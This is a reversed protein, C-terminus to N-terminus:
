ARTKRRAIERKILNLIQMNFSPYRPNSSKNCNMAEYIFHVRTVCCTSDGMDLGVYYAFKPAHRLITKKWMGKSQYNLFSFSFPAFASGTGDQTRCQHSSFLKGRLNKKYSNGITLLYLSFICPANSM